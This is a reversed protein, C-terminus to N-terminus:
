IPARRAYETSHHKSAFVWSVSGALTCHRFRAESCLAQQCFDEFVKFLPPFNLIQELSSDPRSASAEALRFTATSQEGAEVAVQTESGWPLYPFLSIRGGNHGARERMVARIPQINSFSHSVTSFTTSLYPSLLHWRFM